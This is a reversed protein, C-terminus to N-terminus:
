QKVITVRQRIALKTRDGDLLKLYFNKFDSFEESTIFHKKFILKRKVQIGNQSKQFYLEYTGFENELVINRPVELLELNNPIDLTILQESPTLDFLDGLALNNYRVESLLATRTTIPYLIPLQLIQFNSVKELHYYAKMNLHTQLTTDIKRLNDFSFEELKLYDFDSSALSETLFLQQDKTTTKNNLKERWHGAKVGQANMKVQLELNRDGVIAADTKIKLLNKSADLEDNPLRFIESERPRIKLAWQGHNFGPLVDSPFYDTTLDLYRVKEGHIKYGVVVHDFALVSPRIEKQTYNKTRVLVYYSEIGVERLMAIMLSSVDKCDGIGGCITQAPKKPTYNSNLFAVHSYTIEQTLYKYIAEVKEHETMQDNVIEALRNKVEYNAELRRYTKRNYWKVVKKWDEQTSLMIWAFKDMDDLVAEEHQNKPTNFNEWTFIKVQDKFQIDPTCEIRNCIYNIKKEKPIILEFVSKYIPIEMSLWTMHYMENPIERTMDGNSFGEIQILDGPQLNQFVVLNWNRSPTVESGDPKIVKVIGIEGLFSFDAETWYNAGAQNLIKIWLKQAYKLRNTETLEAQINYMLIVSEDNQYHERWSNDTQLQKTTFKQFYAKNSINKEIANIKKRMRELVFNGKLTTRDLERANKFYRLASTTDKKELYIDGMKEITRAHYPHIKLAQEYNKIAFDLQNKEFLYAAKEKFYYTRYPYKEILEDYLKMVKKHNKNKKYYAIANLLDYSDFYKKMREIAKLGQVEIDPSAFEHDEEYNSQNTLFKLFLDKYESIPYKALFTRVYEKKEEEKGNETLWSLYAILAEKHTPTFHLVQRVKSHFSAVENRKDIKQLDSILTAIIPTQYLDLDSLLAEAQEGKGNVALLKAFLYKFFTQDIHTYTLPFFYEEGMESLEMLLYMKTLLYYNKLAKPQSKIKEQLVNIWQYEILKPEYTRTKNKGLFNSKLEPIIKGQTDTIRLAFGASQNGRGTYTKNSFRNDGFSEIMQFSLNGEDFQDNFSLYLNSKSANEIYTSVKVLIRHVGKKMPIELIENDWSYKINSNKDFILDDDLWIKIPTTRAVRFQITQDKPLTIFTNAYYTGNRLYALNENFFVEGNPNRHERQVWKMEFGNENTYVRHKKFSEIELPQQEIHGSGSVNDFAGIVSWNLDQSVTQVTSLSKSFSRKSFLSDAYALTPKVLLSPDLNQKIIEKPHGKYLHQFLAFYEDKWTSQILRNVYKKYNLHDQKVESLFIMGVLADEDNPNIKLKTEFTQQAQVFQNQSILDWGVSQGTAISSYLTIMALLAIYMPNRM